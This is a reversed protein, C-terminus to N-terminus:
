SKWNWETKIKNKNIESYYERRYRGWMKKIWEDTSSSLSCCIGYNPQQSYQQQLFMSTCTDRTYACMSKKSIHEPTTFIAPDYPLGIKQKKLFRRSIEV